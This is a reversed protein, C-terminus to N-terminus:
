LNRKWLRLKKKGVCVLVRNKSNGKEQAMEKQTPLQVKSLIEQALAVKKPFLITNKLKNLSLDIKASTRKKNQQTKM